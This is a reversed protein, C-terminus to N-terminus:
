SAAGLKGIAWVLAHVLAYLLLLVFLYVLDM